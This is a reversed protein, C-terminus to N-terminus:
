NLHWYIVQIIDNVAGAIDGTNYLAEARMLLADAYRFIPFDTSAYTDSYNDAQSGDAKRATFKYVGIGYDGSSSASPIDPSKKVRMYVRKDKCQTFFPDADYPVPVNGYTAITDVMVNM